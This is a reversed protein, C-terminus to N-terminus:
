SFVGEIIYNFIDTEIEIHCDLNFYHLIPVKICAQKLKTFARKVGCIFYGSRSGSAQLKTM